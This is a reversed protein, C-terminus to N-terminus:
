AAGSSGLLSRFVKQEAKRLHQHFTPPAVDLSEAVEEGTTGRPWEFFGAHYAAELAARQRDTLETALVGQVPDPDENRRTVQRQKLLEAGPYSEEVTDVIQRVDGSPALHITMRLDGDEIVASEVYGGVSAITSLVPPESLRLEFHSEEDGDRFTPDDWFAVNDALRSLTEAGDNCARGYVIYEGDGAPVAHEIEIRGATRVDGGLTGVLDAIRFELEVVEDSTLARKREAAAIAHGVVEGLQGIVEHEQGEFANPRDAYVNLVGYVTGEHVVPIAASSRFGYEDARDRWPEYQPDSTVDQVTQIEGTRFAMGTPGGSREDDPDVTITVDDLYGDVGAETRVQVTRSDVDVDGIWAFEYSDSAALRECVTTEIEERSSQDVVAGTIDRVVQNLEDLAALQEGRRRLEREDEHRKIASALINAVSQVFNVDEESFERTETDHTGLIGWPDDPPGIVTSIGSRVDHDTLLDPGSFRTETSLDDVVVPEDTVLTYAAQSDDEVASVTAEGVIGDHWGVGHRLLLEEAEPHLELVKAYENDLTEAVMETAQNMLMDVDLDELAHRGLATVVSQQRIQRELTREYERQETVNQSMGIAASVEGDEDRVPLVHFLYVYDGFEEEFTSPDGDLAARYRPLLLNAVDDSLAEHVQAGEIEDITLSTGKPPTGGVTVYRLDQDVLAVVGNPFNEVITAMRRRSEQLERERQKRETVDRTYIVIGGIDPDERLNRALAELVIWSGDAHKFRFEIEPEYGPTDIMRAFEEYARERDDPHIYEFGVEGVLDEPDYGFVNRVSPTLYRFTGDADVIVNVDKSEQLLTQYSELEREREKRESIDRIIGTFYREGAHDYESFSISLPVETGDAHVGPLEVYDWDIHRGNERLHRQVSSVHDDTMRDPMLTTLSEGILDQPEYGFVERVAPNVERIVSDTDISVIVDSATESLTEYRELDREREKRETIDRFYVSLGSESPYANVEFWTSLPSYFVEFSQSEGTEAAREFQEQITSGASEPLAEWVNRGVLEAESRELLAAARDSVYTFEWNEDLAYFAEDVREFMEDLEAEIEDRQRRLQRERAKRDTVDRGIGTLGVITGDEDTLPSGSFEYPIETGDATVLPLEITEREGYEVVQEVSGSLRERAHDAVFDEICMESLEDDSYGTVEQLRDNWRLLEGEVDFAYVVDRQNDLLSEVFAKEERIRQERERRDTMDRTVKAFGQLEGDERIATITVHAWFRSGDERVRWGEDQVSGEEAAAALNGEPVGAERAEQTYFTSFHEGLVDEADYGKIRKVGPNWTRVHGEPDLTFIAYEEVAEVLSEFQAQEERRALESRKRRTVDYYLEVRGGAFSGTAIPESRHELWREARGEGPLVRCEFRETYTNDEYTALVRDAFEASDEVAPAIHDEVLEPKYRGVVHERDLGFYHEAAENVWAVEFDDDLVFVGVDAGDLVDDVLSEAAATRGLTGQLTEDPPSSGPRWWVRASAGVKKTELWGDEVLRELREYTSRRGLDLRDAVETTTRPEGSRDFVALTERLSETLSTATM